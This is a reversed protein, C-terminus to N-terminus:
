VKRKLNWDATSVVSTIQSAELTNVNAIRAPIDSAKDSQGSYIGLRGSAASTGAKEFM